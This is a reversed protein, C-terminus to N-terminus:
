YNRVNGDRWGLELLYIPARMPMITTHGSSDPLDFGVRMVIDFPNKNTSCVPTAWNVRIPVPRGGILVEFVDGQVINKVFAETM